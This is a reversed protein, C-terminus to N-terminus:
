YRYRDDYNTYKGIVAEEFAIQDPHDGRDYAAAYESATDPDVNEAYFWDEYYVGKAMSAAHEFSEVEVVDEGTILYNGAV